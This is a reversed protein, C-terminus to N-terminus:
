RDDGEGGGMEKDRWCDERERETDCFHAVEFGDDGDQDEDEDDDTVVEWALEKGEEMTEEGEDLAVEVEEGEDVGAWAEEGEDVVVGAEVGEEM